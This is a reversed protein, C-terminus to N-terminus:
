FLGSNYYISLITTILVPIKIPKFDFLKYAINLLTLVILIPYATNIVPGSFKLIASLGYISFGFTCLMTIILSQHYTFKNKSLENQVYEALVMALAIITSFCAFAVAIAIVFAGGSGMIKFSVLSFLKEVGETTFEKGYFSGLLFLGAYVIGLLICGIIGSIM